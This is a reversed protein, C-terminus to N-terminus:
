MSQLSVAGTGLTTSKDDDSIMKKLVFHLLPSNKLQEESLQFSKDYENYFGEGGFMWQVSAGADKIPPTASKWLKNDDDVNRGKNNDNINCTVFFELFPCFRSSVNEKRRFDKLEIMTLTFTSANRSDSKVVTCKVRLTAVPLTTSADDISSIIQVEKDLLSFAANKDSKIQPLVSEKEASSVVEKRGTKGGATTFEEANRDESISTSTSIQRLANAASAASGSPLLPRRYEPIEMNIYDYEGGEEVEENTTGQMSAAIQLEFLQTRLHAIERSFDRATVELQSELAHVRYGRSTVEAQLEDILRDKSTTRPTPEQERDSDSGSVVEEEKQLNNDSKQQM